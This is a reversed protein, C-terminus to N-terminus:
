PGKQLFSVAGVDDDDVDEQAAAPEPAISGKQLLARKNAGEDAVKVRDTMVGLAANLATLEDGRMASRQDWERAKLECKATLDKLYTEDDNLMAQADALAEEAEGIAKKCDGLDATRASLDSEATERQGTKSAM